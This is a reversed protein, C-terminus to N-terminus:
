YIVGRGVAPCPGANGSFRAPLLVEVPEKGRAAQIQKKVVWLDSMLRQQCFLRWFFGVFVLGLVTTSCSHTNTSLHLETSGPNPCPVGRRLTILLFSGPTNLFSSAHIFCYFNLLIAMGWKKKREKWGM